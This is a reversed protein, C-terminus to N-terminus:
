KKSSHATQMERRIISFTRFCLFLISMTELVIVPWSHLHIGVVIWLLSSVISVFTLGHQKTYLFAITMIVSVLAPLALQWDPVFYLTIVFIASFVSLFAMKFAPHSYRRNLLNRTIALFVTIAPIWAQLLLLHLVFFTNGLTYYQDLKRDDEQLDSFLFIATALWGLGQSIVEINSM